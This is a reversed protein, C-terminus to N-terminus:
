AFHQSSCFDYFFNPSVNPHIERTAFHTQGRFIKHINQLIFVCPQCFLVPYAGISKLRPSNVHLLVLLASSVCAVSFLAFISTTSLIYSWLPKNWTFGVSTTQM